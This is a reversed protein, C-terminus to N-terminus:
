KWFQMAIWVDQIVKIPKDRRRHKTKTSSSQQDSVPVNYGTSHPIINDTSSRQTTESAAALPVKLRAAVTGTSSEIAELSIKPTIVKSVETESHHQYQEM